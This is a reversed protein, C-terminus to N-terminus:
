KFVIRENISELAIMKVNPAKTNDNNIGPFFTNIIPTNGKRGPSAIFDVATVSKSGDSHFNIFYFKFYPYNFYTM